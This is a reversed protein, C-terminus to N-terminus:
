FKNGNPGPLASPLHIEGLPKYYPKYLLFSLQHLRSVMSFVELVFSFEASVQNFRVINPFELMRDNGASESKVQNSPVMHSVLVDANRRFILVFNHVEDVFNM